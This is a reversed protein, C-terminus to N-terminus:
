NHCEVVVDKESLRKLNEILDFERIFDELKILEVESIDEFELKNSHALKIINTHDQTPTERLYLSSPDLIRYIAYRSIQQGKLNSILKSYKMFIKQLNESFQRMGGSKVKIYPCIVYGYNSSIILFDFFEKVLEIYELQFNKDEIVKKFSSPGFHGEKFNEIIREFIEPVLEDQNKRFTAIDSYITVDNLNSHIKAIKKNYKILDIPAIFIRESFEWNIYGTVNLAIADLLASKGTNNRGTIINILKPSYKLKDIVRFDKISLNEIFGM